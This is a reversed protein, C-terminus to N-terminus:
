TLALFTLRSSEMGAWNEVSVLTKNFCAHMVKKIIFCFFNRRCGLHRSACPSLACPEHLSCDWHPGAIGAKEWNVGLDVGPPPLPFTIFPYKAEVWARDVSVSCVLLQVNLNIPCKSQGETFYNCWPFFILINVCLSQQHFAIYSNYGAKRYLGAGRCRGEM